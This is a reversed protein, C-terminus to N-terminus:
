AGQDELCPTYPILPFLGPNSVTGVEKMPLPYSMLAQMTPDSRAIQNQGQLTQELFQTSLIVM